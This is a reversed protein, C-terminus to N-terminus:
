CHGGRGALEPQLYIRKREFVDYKVTLNTRGPDLKDQFVKVAEGLMMGGIIMNSMVVSAQPGEICSNRSPLQQLNVQCDICQTKGPVYVALQGSQPSTGGDIYSTKTKRCFENLWLRAFKNDLGGLILDYGQEFIEAATVLKVGKIKEEANLSYNKRSFAAISKPFIQERLGVPKNEWQRRESFYLEELWKGRLTSDIDGIKGYIENVELRQDLNKCREALVKAKKEGVQNYFLLQRNLNSAEITDMDLIDLRGVGLDTLGLALFNGLAGGGVLLVKKNRYYHTLRPLIDSELNNRELSFPNYCYKEGSQLNGDFSLENGKSDTYNFLSKRLEELAMGAVVCSTSVSQKEEAFEPWLLNQLSSNQERNDKPWYCSLASKEQSSALSIMPIKKALAYNATIEKSVPDNTTEIIFDPQYLSVRAQNFDGFLPIYHCDEKIAKVVTGFEKVREKGIRYEDYPTLFSFDNRTIRSDHMGMILGNNSQYGVGLGALSGIVLQALKNSGVVLVKQQSLKEQNVLNWTQINRQDVESIKIV